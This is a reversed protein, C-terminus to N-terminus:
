AYRWVTGELMKPASKMMEANSFGASGMHRAPTGRRLGAGGKIGGTGAQVPAEHRRAIVGAEDIALHAKDVCGAGRGPKERKSAPSGAASVDPTTGRSRLLWPRARAAMDAAGGTFVALISM